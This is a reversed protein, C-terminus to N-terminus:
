QPGNRRLTEILVVYLFWSIIVVLSLVCVAFAVYLVIKFYFCVAVIIWFIAVLSGAILKTNLPTM